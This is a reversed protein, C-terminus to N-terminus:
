QDAFRFVVGASARFQNRYRSDDMLYRWGFQTRMWIRDAIRVDVGLEPQVQWTTHSASVSARETRRSNIGVLLQGFPVARPGPNLALRLGAAATTETYQTTSTMPPFTLLTASVDGAHRGVEVVVSSTPSLRRSVSALGGIMNTPVSDRVYTAGISVDMAGSTTSSSQASAVAPLLMLCSLLVLGRQSM